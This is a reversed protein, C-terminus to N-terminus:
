KGFVPRVLRRKHVRYHVKPNLILLFLQQSVSCSNAEWLRIGDVDLDRL